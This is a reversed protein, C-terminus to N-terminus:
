RSVASGAIAIAAPAVAAYPEEPAAEEGLQATLAQMHAEDHEAM